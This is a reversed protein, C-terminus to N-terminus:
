RTSCRPLTRENIAKLLPKYLHREFEEAEARSRGHSNNEQLYADEFTELQEGRQKLVAEQLNRVNIMSDQWAERMKNYESDAMLDYMARATDDHDDEVDIEDRFLLKPNIGESIQEAKSLLDKKGWTEPERAEAPMDNEVDPYTYRGGFDKTHLKVDADVVRVENNLGKVINNKQLDSVVIEGNSFASKEDNIPEFGLSHMYQVREDVSLPSTNGFDVFPQELFRVFKGNVRGYGLIKYSSNPFVFNFLNVYDIDSPFKKKDFKGKSVKIVHSGDNSLYVDSDTGSAIPTTDDTFDSVRTHWNGTAKAWGELAAEKAAEIRRRAEPRTRGNKPVASECIRSFLADTSNTREGEHLGREMKQPVRESIRRGFPNKPTADEIYKDIQQLTLSNFKGSLVNDRIERFEKKREQEREQRM